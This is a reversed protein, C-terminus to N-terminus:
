TQPTAQPPRRRRRRRPRRRREPEAAPPRGGALANLDHGLLNALRCADVFYGKQAIKKPLRAGEQP